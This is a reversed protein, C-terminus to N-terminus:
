STNQSMSLAHEVACKQLCPLDFLSHNQQHQWSGPSTLRLCIIRLQWNIEQHAKILWTWCGTQWLEQSFCLFYNRLLVFINYLRKGPMLQLIWLASDTGQQCYNIILTFYTTQTPLYQETKRFFRKKHPKASRPQHNKGCVTKNPAWVSIWVMSRHWVEVCIWYFSPLIAFTSVQLFLRKQCTSHIQEDNSKFTFGM